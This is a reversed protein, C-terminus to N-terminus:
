RPELRVYPAPYVGLFTLATPTGMPRDPDPILVLRIVDTFACLHREPTGAKDVRLQLEGPGDDEISAGVPRRWEQFGTVEFVIRDPGNEVLWGRLQGPRFDLDDFECHMALLDVSREVSSCSGYGPASAVGAFGPSAEHPSVVTLSPGAPDVSSESAVAIWSTQQTAIGYALGVERLRTKHDEPLWPKDHADGCAQRVMMADVLSRGFARVLCREGEGHAVAPVVIERRVPGAASNAEIVVTGGQPRLRVPIRAPMGQFVDSEVHKSVELVADGLVRLDTWVPKETHALVRQAAEQHDALEGTLAEIGRGARALHFTVGRNPAMSVGVVHLRSRQPLRQAVEAVLGAEDSVFGDTVLVVQRQADHRISALSERIANHIHTGGAPVLNQLWRIAAAKDAETAPSPMPRWRVHEEAFAALEITDRDDLSRLMDIIVLKALSFSEGEMSGSADVLVALDRPMHATAVVPPLLTVLGFASDELPDDAPPRACRVGVSVEPLAAPWHVVVDRDLRASDVLGHARGPERETRFEHTGSLFSAGDALPDELTLRVCLRDEVAGEILKVLMRDRDSVGPEGYFRPMVTTPFRWEWGDGRWRLPQDVLVEVILELGPPLNSLEQTFVSGTAEELLAVLKGEATAAAHIERAADREEIRGEVRQGGVSFSYGAVVGDAPLPLQYLVHLTDPYPNVFTQTVRVAAMGQAATAEIRMRRLPLKRGDEATAFPSSLSFDDPVHSPYLTM